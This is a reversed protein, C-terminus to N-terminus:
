HHIKIDAAKNVTPRERAASCCSVLRPSFSLARSRVFYTKIMRTTNKGDCETCSNKWGRAPGIQSKIRYRPRLDTIAGCTAPVFKWTQQHILASNYFLRRSRLARDRPSSFRLGAPGAAVISLKRDWPEPSPVVLTAICTEVVMLTCVWAAQTRARLQYLFASAVNCRTSLSLRRVDVQRVPGADSWLRCFAHVIQFGIM